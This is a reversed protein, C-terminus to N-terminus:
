DHSAGHPSSRMRVTEPGRRLYTTALAYWLWRLYSPMWALIRFRSKQWPRRVWAAPIEDIRWGLRHAKVLLEMSYAHGQRSEIPIRKVVRRSFLRLGNSVDHTPLGGAGHLLLSASRAMMAKLRPLGSVRGGPMFRSACVVDCGDRLREMMADIRGANYDDHAPIILVAPASSAALGTVVAGLVGKGRNKVLVIRAGLMEYSAIASLTPDDDSDYCILMRFTTCVSRAMSDLLRVIPGGVNFVPVVIDLEPPPQHPAEDAM